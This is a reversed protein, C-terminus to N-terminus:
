YLPKPQSQTITEAVSITLEARVIRWQDKNPLLNGVWFPALHARAAEPTNFIQGCWINGHPAIIAFGSKRYADIAM